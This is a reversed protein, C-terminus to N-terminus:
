CQVPQSRYNVCLQVPQRVVVHSTFTGTMHQLRRCEDIFRIDPQDIPLVHPPLVSRMEKSHCRLQHPANQNVESTVPLVEFPTAVGQLDGQGLCCREGNM